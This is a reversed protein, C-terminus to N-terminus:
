RSAKHGGESHETTLIATATCHQFAQTVVRRHRRPMPMSHALSAPPAMIVEGGVWEARTDEDCWDLYEAYSMGRAASLKEAHM